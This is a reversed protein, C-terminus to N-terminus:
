GYGYEDLASCSGVASDLATCSAFDNDIDACTPTPTLTWVSNVVGAKWFLGTVTDQQVFTDLIPTGGPTLRLGVADLGGLPLSRNNGAGVELENASM